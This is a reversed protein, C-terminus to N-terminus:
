ASMGVVKRTPFHHNVYKQLKLYTYVKKSADSKSVEAPELFIKKLAADPVIERRETPNQLNHEKIYKSIHSTVDTRAVPVGAKVPVRPWNDYEQQSSPVFSSDKMTAKTKVLFTYLDDSVIVPEAFGTSRRPKTFDKAKKKKNKRIVDKVIQEHERQLKRFEQIQSKLVLMHSQHAQILVDLRQKLSLSTVEEVHEEEVVKTELVPESVKAKTKLTTRTTTTKVSPTAKNM